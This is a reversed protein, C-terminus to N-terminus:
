AGERINNKVIPPLQKHYDTNQELAYGTNLIVAEDLPKGLFQIGVPLSNNDFGCPVSIGPLGALNASITFVDSLYMTLADATKEGIRFATTPSVPTAIIDVKRFAEDFDRKILTRVKLGKLYYADYYGSSLVYTGLLIRRKVEAGFGEDKTKKYMDLVDAVQSARYGYRVGDFRALNSSAEATAVIYYTALTYETHPLSIEMVEAGLSELKRVANRVAQEVETQMGKIFYEKPLGIKLGKVNGNLAALYDPVEANISTSDKRDYGSITQLMLACDTVNRAFCGVQDLSSAYAILGYRSVRGYTPKIGVVGCFSAPLRISGGTDSGFSAFAECAAVSAASGGSSGGPIREINWPNRTTGFASNETSSGMAFEDMNTRGVLIAGADHSKLVSTATYPPKYGKLIKSACTTEQGKVSLVDKVSVPIGGLAGIDENRAIKKDIDEARKLAGEADIRLYAKIQGDTKEIANLISLTLEKVSIERQKLLSKIETISLINLQM